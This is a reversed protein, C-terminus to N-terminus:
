FFSNVTGIICGLLAGLWVIANLEKKMVDLIIKETEMMDMENIRDRIIKSIDLTSLIKPLHTTIITTYGELLIHRLQVIQEDHDKLLDSVPTDLLHNSEQAVFNSIIEESNKAIIQNIHKELQHETPGELFSLFKDAGLFGMVGSSMKMMVHEIVAHAM